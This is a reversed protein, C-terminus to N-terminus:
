RMRARSRGVTLKYLRYPLQGAFLAFFFPGLLNSRFADLLRLDAVFAFSRTLGCGPCSFGFVRRYFCLVPVDWGMVSVVEATPDMLAALVVIGACVLYTVFHTFWWQRTIPRSM